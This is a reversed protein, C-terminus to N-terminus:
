KELIAALRLCRCDLRLEEEHTSLETIPIRTEM